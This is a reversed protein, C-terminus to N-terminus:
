AHTSSQLDSRAIIESTTTKQMVFFLLLHLINCAFATVFTAQPSVHYFLASALPPLIFWGFNAGVFMLSCYIVYLPVNFHGDLM